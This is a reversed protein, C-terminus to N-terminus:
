AMTARSAGLCSICLTKVTIHSFVGRISRGTAESHLIRKAPNELTPALIPRM